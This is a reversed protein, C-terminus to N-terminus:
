RELWYSPVDWFPRDAEAEAQSRTVGIDDLMRDDLERLHLRQRWATFGLFFHNMLGGSQIRRGLLNPRSFVTFMARKRQSRQHKRPPEDVSNFKIAGEPMNTFHINKGYQM